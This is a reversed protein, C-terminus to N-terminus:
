SILFQVAQAGEILQLAFSGIQYNADKASNKLNQDLNNINVVGLDPNKWAVRTTHGKDESADAQRIYKYYSDKEKDPWNFGFHVAEPRQHIDVQRIEGTFLCFLVNKSLREVRWLKLAQLEKSTGAEIGRGDVLLDPWGAVVDSRLLFGSVKQKPRALHEIEKAEALKSDEKIKGKLHRDTECHNESM